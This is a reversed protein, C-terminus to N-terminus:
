VYWTTLLNTNGNSSLPVVAHDYWSLHRKEARSPSPLGGLDPCPIGSRWRNRILFCSRGNTPQPRRAIPPHSGVGAPAPEAREIEASLLISRCWKRFMVSSDM